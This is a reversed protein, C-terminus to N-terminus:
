FNRDSRRSCPTKGSCNFFRLGLVLNRERTNRKWETCSPQVDDWSASKRNGMLVHRPREPFLTVSIMKMKTQQAFYSLPYIHM